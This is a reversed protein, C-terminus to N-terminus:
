IFIIQYSKSSIRVREVLARIIPEDGIAIAPVTVTFDFSSMRESDGYIYLPPQAESDGYIYLPPQAESDGYIYTIPVVWAATTVTIAGGAAPVSANLAAELLRRQSNWRTQSRMDASYAAWGNAIAELSSCAAHLFGVLRRGRLFPPLVQRILEYTNFSM